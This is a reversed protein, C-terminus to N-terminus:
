SSTAYNKLNNILSVLKKDNFKQAFQTLKKFDLNHLNQLRLDQWTQFVPMFRYGNLYLFDIMAKEPLAIHYSLNGQKKTSFGFFCSTKMTRYRFIGFPTQFTRTPKTTVSTIEFVAEPIIGYFSLAYELSIYSPGYLKTAIVEASLAHEMYDKSLAYLGNKVKVIKNQSAWVSLQKNVTHINEGFFIMRLDQKTFLPYIRMRKQFDLFYMETKPILISFDSILIVQFCLFTLNHVTRM